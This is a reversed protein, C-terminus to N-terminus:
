ESAHDERPEPTIGLTVCLFATGLEAILAEAAYADDRLRKGLVRAPDATWHTLEHAKTAAYSEADNFAEPCPLQIFDQAPAYFARNGGYRFTTGTAAFFTEASDILQLKEGADIPEPKADYAAPLGEIQEVNFVTYAKMCPIGRELEEGNDGEETKRIRDACM